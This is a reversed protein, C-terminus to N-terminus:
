ILNIVEVLEDEQNIVTEEEVNAFRAPNFGNVKVEM